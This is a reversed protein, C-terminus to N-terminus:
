DSGQGKKEAKLHTYICNVSVKMEEAIQSASWGANHLAVVKNHDIGRKPPPAIEGAGSSWKSMILKNYDALPIVVYGEPYINTQAM